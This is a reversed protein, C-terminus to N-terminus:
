ADPEPTVPQRPLWRDATVGDRCLRGRAVVGAGEGQRAVAGRVAPPLCGDNRPLNGSVPPLTEQYLHYRHCIECEGIHRRLQEAQATTLQDDLLDWLHRVVTLCEEPISAEAAELPPEDTM